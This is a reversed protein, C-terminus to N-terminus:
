VGIILQEARLDGGAAGDHDINALPRAPHFVEFLKAVQFNQCVLAFM